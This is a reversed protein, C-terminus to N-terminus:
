FRLPPRQESLVDAQLLIVLANVLRRVISGGVALVRLLQAGM